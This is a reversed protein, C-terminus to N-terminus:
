EVTYSVVVGGTVVANIRGPRLDMTAPLSVGDRMVIRFMINNSSAYEEAGAETMGVFAEVSSSAQTGTESTVGKVSEVEYSTVVGAVTTANIRGEQLDRTTPLSKGDENVVRFMVGDATAKAQAEVVSMGIYDSETPPLNEPCYTAGYEAEMLGASKAEAVTSYRNGAEDCYVVPQGDAYYQIESDPNAVLEEKPSMVVYAGIAIVLVVILLVIIKNM